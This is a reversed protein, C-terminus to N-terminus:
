AYRSRAYANVCARHHAHRGNPHNYLNSPDDWQKCFHCKKWDAHGSAELADQRRHLLRHFAADECIVLNEPRNDRPDRNVHHVQAKPPLPKGLAKSAIVLHELVYGKKMAHPHDPAFVMPYIGSKPRGGKWTPSNEGRTNHGYIFRRPEGKVLGRSHHTQTAISTKGGCGCQCFGYDSM